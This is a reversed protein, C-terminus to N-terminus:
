RGIARECSRAKRWLLPRTGRPFFASGTNNWMPILRRRPESREQISTATAASLNLDYRDM